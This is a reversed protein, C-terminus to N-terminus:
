TVTWVGLPGNLAFWASNGARYVLTISSGITTTTCTGDSASLASGVRIFQGTNASITFTVGTTDFIFYITTGQPPSLPLTATASGTIFYGNEAVANFSSSEDTWIGGTSSITITGPGNTVTVGGGGTITALVPDAGTSGIPIQGNTAVGLPVLAANTGEFLALSHATQTGLKAGLTASTIANAADTGAIAQANTALTITGEQTTTAQFATVILTNTAPNGIINIGSSNNGVLSINFTGSPGVLGGSNGSVTEVVAGGSTTITLTGSQSM